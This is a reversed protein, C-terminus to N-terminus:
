AAPHRDNALVGDARTCQNEAVPRMLISGHEFQEYQKGARDGEGAAPVLVDDELVKRKPVLQARQLLAHFLRM